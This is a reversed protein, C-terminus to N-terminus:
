FGSRSQKQQDRLRVLKTIPPLGKEARIKNIAPLAEAMSGFKNEPGPGFLAMLQTLPLNSITEPTWGPYKELLKTYLELRDTGALADDTM